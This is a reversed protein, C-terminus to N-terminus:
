PAQQIAKVSPSRVIKKPTLLAQLRRLMPWEVLQYSLWGVALVAIVLVLWCLLVVASSLPAHSRMIAEMGRGVFELALPSALYASYSSDGVAVSARWAPRESSPSWFIIGAVIFAAALGWTLARHTVGNDNLIMEMSMAGTDFFFKVAIAGIVGILTLAIGARRHRGLARYILAICAGFVFELLIPNAAV